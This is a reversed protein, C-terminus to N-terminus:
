GVKGGFLWATADDILKSLIVPQVESKARSVERAWSARSFRKLLRAKASGTPSKAAPGPGAASSTTTAPVAADAPAEASTSTPTAEDALYASLCAVIPDKSRAALAAFEARAEEAKKNILLTFGWDWAIWDPAEIGAKGRWESFYAECDAPDNRLLHPVGFLVALKRLLAPKRARVEAELRGMGDIGSSVLYANALLRLYQARVRGKAFVLEELRAILGPWDERELLSFLRWNAIFFSNLAALVLVFVCGIVWNGAWFLGAYEAGMIFLPMIFIFAFSFVIIVNFIVFITKFKM